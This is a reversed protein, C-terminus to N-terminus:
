CVCLIRSANVLFVHRFRGMGGMYKQQRVFHVPQVHVDGEGFWAQVDM